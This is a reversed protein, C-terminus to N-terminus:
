LTLVLTFAKEIFNLKAVAFSNVKRSRLSHQMVLSVSSRQSSGLSAKLTTFYQIVSLSLFFIFEVSVWSILADGEGV